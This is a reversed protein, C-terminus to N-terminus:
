PSGEQWGAALLRAVFDADDGDFEDTRWPRLPMAGHGVHKEMQESPDIVWPQLDVDVSGDAAWWVSKVACTPGDSPNDEWAFLTVTDAAYQGESRPRPLFPTEIHKHFLRGSGFNTSAEITLFLTIEPM